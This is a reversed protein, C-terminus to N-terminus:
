LTSELLDIQLDTIPHHIQRNIKGCLHLYKETTTLNKHGLQEKIYVIDTGNELHHTAYCHRLTHASLGKKIKAKRKARQLIKHISSHSYQLHHKSQGEFLYQKPRYEKYYLRLIPFLCEPMDVVRDKSGKGLRVFLEKRDSDIDGIRVNTLESIRIGTGYFLYIIARHKLSKTQIIMSEVERRSLIRNLKKETRPRPLKEIEWQRHLIKTCFLKIGSYHINVTGWSRNNRKLQLLYRKSLEIIDSEEGKQDVVYDFFSSLSKSYLSITSKSYNALEMYDIYSNLYSTKSRSEKM